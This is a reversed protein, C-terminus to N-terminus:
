IGRPRARTASGLLPTMPLLPHRYLLFEAGGYKPGIFHHMRGKANIRRASDRRRSRKIAPEGLPLGRTSRAGDFLKSSPQDGAIKSEYDALHRRESQDRSRCAIFNRFNRTAVATASPM